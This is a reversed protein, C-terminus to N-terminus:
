YKIRPNRLHQVVEESDLLMANSVPIKSYKTITFLFKNNLSPVVDVEFDGKVYTYLVAGVNKPKWECEVLVDRIRKILPKPM